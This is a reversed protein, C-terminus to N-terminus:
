SSLRRAPDSTPLSLCVALSPHSLSSDSNSVGDDSVHRPLPSSQVSWERRLATRHFHVKAM